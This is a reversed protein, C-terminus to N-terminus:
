KVESKTEQTIRTSIHEELRTVHTGLAELEKELVEGQGKSLQLIAGHFGGDPDLYQLTVTDYKKHAFLSVVRGGGFPAAVKTLAMPTGGVQKDQQGLFVDQISGLTIQADSGDSKQFRLTNGQISLDGKANSSVNEFGLIHTVQLTAGSAGTSEVTNDQAMVGYSALLMLFMLRRGIQSLPVIGGMM